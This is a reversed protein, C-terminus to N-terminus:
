FFGITVGLMGGVILDTALGLITGFVSSVEKWPFVSGRWREM